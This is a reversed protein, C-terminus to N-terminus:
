EDFKRTGPRHYGDKGGRLGARLAGPSLAVGCERAFEVVDFNPDLYALVQATVWMANTRVNDTSKPDMQPAPGRDDARSHGARDLRAHADSWDHQRIEAAHM